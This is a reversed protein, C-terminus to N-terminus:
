YGKTYDVRRVYNNDPFFYKGDTPVTRLRFDNIRSEKDVISSIMCFIPDPNPSVHSMGGGRIGILLGGGVGPISLM